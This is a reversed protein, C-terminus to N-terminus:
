RSHLLGSASLKAPAGALSANKADQGLRQRITWPRKFAMIDMHEGTLGETDSNKQPPHFSEEREIDIIRELKDATGNM